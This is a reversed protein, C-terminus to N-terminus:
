GFYVTLFLFFPFLMCYLIRRNPDAIQIFGGQSLEGFIVNKGEMNAHEMVNVIQLIANEPIEGSSFPLRFEFPREPYVKQSM